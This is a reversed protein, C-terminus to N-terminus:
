EVLVSNLLRYIDLLHNVTYNLDKINGVQVGVVITFKHIQGMLEIM